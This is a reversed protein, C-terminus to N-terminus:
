PEVSQEPSPAILALPASPDDRRIGMCGASGGGHLMQLHTRIHADAAADVTAGPMCTRGCRMNAADAAAAAAAAAAAPRPRLWLQLRIRLLLRIRLCTHHWHCLLLSSRLWSPDQQGPREFLLEPLKLDSPLVRALRHRLSYSNVMLLPLTKTQHWRNRRPPETSSWHGRLCNRWQNNWRHDGLRERRPQHRRNHRLYQRPSHRRNHRLYQRPSHRRNHRPFPRRYISDSM